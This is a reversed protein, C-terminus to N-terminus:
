LDDEDLYSTDVLYTACYCVCMHICAYVYTCELRVRIISGDFADVPLIAPTSFAGREHPYRTSRYPQCGAHRVSERGPLVFPTQPAYRDKLPGSLLISKYGGVSPVDTLITSYIAFLPENAPDNRPGVFEHLFNTPEIQCILAECQHKQM